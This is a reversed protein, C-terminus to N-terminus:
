ERGTLQGCYSRVANSEPTVMAKHSGRYRYPFPRANLEKLGKLKSFTSHRLLLRKAKWIIMGKKNSVNIYVWLNETEFNTWKQKKSQIEALLDNKGTKVVSRKATTKKPM